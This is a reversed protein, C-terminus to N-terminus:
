LSATRAGGGLADLVVQPTLVEPLLVPAAQGGPYYVYLPVGSRGFRDLYATIAPDRNTWDARVTTVGREAFAARVAEVGLSTKKNVQCTLCWAATFDIFVPEGSAVLAEVAEPDFAEWGDSAGAGSAVGATWGSAAVVLVGAALASALAATRAAVRGRGSAAQWRGWVWAGFGVLVLALLLAGAGDVGAQRGFVWVLWGATAFLPFALAQKLAEMWPGPRPLRRLWAPHFSLVVYPLAMGVGLSTFVALALPAPQAVAYGLAAGMFPATCPTAVVTALVGSLFAGGTGEGRDFRAGATMLRGGVEFVGLLNLALLTMLVALGAVVPPSQMQFGWGLGAGAARLALLTGALVVFSLVVGSAFALGNRRLTAADDERGRVFGLVKLGLVPFVCPMLNLLLGGVFALGLAAWLGMGAEPVSAVATAGAGAVLADVEVARAGGALVQGEPGVLVGRLRDAPAEAYPSAALAVAWAGGEQQFTQAAPHDVVGPTDVYFQAGELSGTWGAPPDLSLVYGGDTTAASATWGEAKAPISARAADLRGTEAPAGVPITLSVTQEAPLCVDACVLWDLDAVVEVADGVFDAPVALRVLHAPSGEYGYSTLGAVDIRSPYPFRLPGATVGEPLTWAAELPLGSDGANTWYSHWGEDLDLRVAVDVSEGPRVADADAVLAAESHPSPDGGVQAALPAAGLLALLFFSLRM